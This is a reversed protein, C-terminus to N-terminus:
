LFFSDEYIQVRLGLSKLYTAIETANKNQKLSLKIDEGNQTYINAGRSLLYKVIDLHGNTIAIMVADDHRAHINAGHEVLYKVIELYGYHSALMLPCDQDYHINIKPLGLLYEVIDLHGYHAAQELLHDPYFDAGLSILYKILTLHGFQAAHSMAVASDGMTIGQSILYQVIDLYGHKVAIRFAFNRGFHLSSNMSVLYQIIDLRGASIAIKMLSKDKVDISPNHKILYKVKELYGSIIAEKITRTHYIERVINKQTFREDINTLRNYALSKMFRDNKCIDTDLKHNLRCLKILDSDDTYLALLRIVDAPLNNLRGVSSSVHNIKRRKVTKRPKEIKVNVTISQDFMDLIISLNM